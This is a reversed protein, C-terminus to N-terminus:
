RQVDKYPDRKWLFLKERVVSVVLVALGGILLLAGAQVVIPLETDALIAQVARWLGYGLVVAAGISTLIWAIGRELRRYVGGWYRDWVEAPPQRLTMGDTVEKLRVLRTWEDQLAPDRELMRDLEDQEARGLEGDLAAMLLQRARETRQDTRSM